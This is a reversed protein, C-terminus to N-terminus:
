PSETTWGKRNFRYINTFIKKGLELSYVKDSYRDVIYSDMILVAHVSKDKKFAVVWIFMKNEDAGVELADYYSAVAFGKCDAARFKETQSRKIIMRINPM